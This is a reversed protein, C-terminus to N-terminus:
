IKSKIKIEFINQGEENIYNFEDSIEKVLLLGLGNGNKLCHNQYEEISLNLKEKAIINGDSISTINICNDNFNYKIIGNKSHKLINSALEDLVLETKFRIENKHECIYKKIDSFLKILDTKDKISYEKIIIM